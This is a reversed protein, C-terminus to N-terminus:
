RQLDEEMKEMFLRAWNQSPESQLGENICEVETGGDNRAKEFCDKRLDKTEYDMEYCLLKGAGNIVWGGLHQYHKSGCIHCKGICVIKKRPM